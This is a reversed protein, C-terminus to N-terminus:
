AHVVVPGASINISSSFSGFGALSFRESCQSELLTTYVINSKKSIWSVYYIQAMGLWVLGILLSTIDGSEVSLVFDFNHKFGIM